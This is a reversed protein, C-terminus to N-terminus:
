NPLPQLILKPTAVKGSLLSEFAEPGDDLVRTETWDLKGFAEDFIAQATDRFDQATYCFSGVFTIEQLTARRTDLGGEGHSLGLHCIVGGPRVIESAMARTAPLGVADIVVHPAPPPPDNDPDFVDFPGIKRLYARRVANPEAIAVKEAGFARLVLAAGYGIAGGGQILCVGETVSRDLANRVLQVAHWCVALPEALCARSFSIGDPVTVLSREPVKAFEAFSGERPPMSM